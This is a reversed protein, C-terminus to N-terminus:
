TNSDVKEAFIDEPNRLDNYVGDVYYCAQNFRGKCLCAPVTQEKTAKFRKTM